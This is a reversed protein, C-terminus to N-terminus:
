FTSRFVKVERTAAVVVARTAVVEPTAVVVAVRTVAM